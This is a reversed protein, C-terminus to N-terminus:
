EEEEGEGYILVRLEGVIITIQAFLAGVEDDKEFMQKNDLARMTALVDQVGIFFRAIRQELYDIINEQAELSRMSNWVAYGLVANLLVSLGLLIIMIM